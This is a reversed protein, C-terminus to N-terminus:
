KGEVEVEGEKWEFRVCYPDELYNIITNSYSRRCEGVKVLRYRGLVGAVTLKVEMMAMHQGICNRPGSFFPLFAAHNEIPKNWRDPNFVEPADWYRPNMM